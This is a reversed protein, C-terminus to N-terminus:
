AGVERGCRTWRGVSILPRTTATYGLQTSGPKKAVMLIGEFCSAGEEGALLMGDDDALGKGALLPGALIREPLLDAVSGGFVGDHADGAVGVDIGEVIVISCFLVPGSLRVVHGAHDDDHSGCAFGAGQSGCDLGDAFAEIRFGHRFNPLDLQEIAFIDRAEFHDRGCHACDADDSDAESADPENSEHGERHRLAGLFNCNANRESRPRARHKGRDQALVCPRDSESQKRAARKGRESRANQPDAEVADAIEIGGAVGAAM